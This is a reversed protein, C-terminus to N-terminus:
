DENAPTGAVLLQIKDTSGTTLTIRNATVSDITCATTASFTMAGSTNIMALAFEVSEFESLTIWDGDETSTVEYFGMTLGTGYKSSGAGILGGTFTETIEEAAM